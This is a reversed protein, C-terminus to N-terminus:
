FDFLPDMPHPIPHPNVSSPPYRQFSTAAVRAVYLIEDGTAAPVAMDSTAETATSCSSSTSLSQSPRSPRIPLFRVVVVCLCQSRHSRNFNFRLPVASCFWRITASSSPTINHFVGATGGETSYSASTTSLDSWDAGVSQLMDYFVSLLETQTGVFQRITSMRHQSLNFQKMISETSFSPSLMHAPILVRKEMLLFNVKPMEPVVFNFTVAKWATQLLSTLYSAPQVETQQTKKGHIFDGGLQVQFERWYHEWTVDNNSCNRHQHKVSVAIRTQALVNGELTMFKDLLNCIDLPTLDLLDNAIPSTSRRGYSSGVVSIKNLQAKSMMVRHSFSSYWQRRLRKHASFIKSQTFWFTDEEDCCCINRVSNSEKLCLTCKVVKSIYWLWFHDNRLIRSRSYTSAAILCELGSLGGTLTILFEGVVSLVDMSLINLFEQEM